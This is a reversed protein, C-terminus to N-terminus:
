VQKMEVTLVRYIVKIGGIVPIALIMGMIGALLGGTLVGLLCMAPHIDVQEKMVLPLILVNDLLQVLLGIGLIGLAAGIDAHSSLLILISVVIGIIPGIIRIVNTFAIILAIILATTITLSTFPCLLALLIFAIGGILINEVVLGRLYYGMLELSKHLIFVGPEFFTNPILQITAKYIKEGDLLASVLIFLFILLFQGTARVFDSFVKLLFASRGALWTSFQRIHAVRWEEKIFGKAKLQQSLRLGLSVLKSESKVLADNPTSILELEQKIAPLLRYSSLALGAIMVIFLMTITIGKPIGVRHASTILPYLVYAVLLGAVVPTILTRVQYLILFGAITLIVIVLNRGFHDQNM